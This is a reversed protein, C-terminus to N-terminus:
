ALKDLIDVVLSSYDGIENEPVSFYAMGNEAAHSLISRIIVAQPGTVTIDKDASEDSKVADWNDYPSANESINKWLDEVMSDITPEPHRQGKIGYFVPGHSAVFALMSALLLAQSGNLSLVKSYSNDGSVIEMPNLIRTPIRKRSVAM